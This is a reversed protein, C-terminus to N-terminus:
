RTAGQAEHQEALEFLQARLWRHRADENLRQPWRAELAFGPIDVPPTAVRLRSRRPVLSSPLTLVYDSEAVIALASSFFPVHLAVHRQLGRAHLVRDVAGVATGGVPRVLVHEADVFRRLTWRKKALPHASRVVTVFRERLLSVSVVGRMSGGVKPVVLLDLLGGSLRGFADTGAPEVMLSLGPAQALVRTAWRRILAGMAHETAAVRVVGEAVSPDFPGAPQLVARLGDLAEALPREVALARPTPQMRGAKGVLLPDDLVARLQALSRSMASQTVGMRQAARTVSREHLLWHLALLLNLNLAELQVASM